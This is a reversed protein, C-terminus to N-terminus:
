CLILGILFVFYFQLNERVERSRCTAAAVFLWLLRRTKTHSFSEKKKNQKDKIGRQRPHENFEPILFFACVFDYLM